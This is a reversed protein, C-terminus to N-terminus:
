VYAILQMGLGGLEGAPISTRRTGPIVGPEPDPLTFGRERALRVAEDLSGEVEWAAMSALAAPRGAMRSGPGDPGLLELIADGVQLQRIIMGPARIEGAVSVGLTDRWFATTAEIDPAVAALHDLRKLPFTHAFRGTALSRGYRAEWTEPYSLFTLPFPLAGRTDAVATEALKRGDGAHVDRRDVALGSAALRSVAGAMDNSGFAVSALGGGADVAHLYHARSGAAVVSRDTVELLEIYTYNAASSGIFAARNATGMGAHGTRPTLRLGLREYAGAATALDPVPVVLHDIRDLM